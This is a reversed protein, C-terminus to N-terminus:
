RQVKMSPTILSAQPTWILDDVKVKTPIEFRAFGQQKLSSAIATLLKTEDPRGGVSEWGKEPQSVVCVCHDKHPLAFVVCAGIGPVQKLAAEVKGLAVYEGSM